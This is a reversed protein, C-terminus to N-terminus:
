PRDGGGAPQGSAAPLDPGDPLLRSAAPRRHLREVVARDTLEVAEAGAAADAAVADAASDASQLALVMTLGGGPTTEPTLTGGMAEILGRSLALGLGIGSENDRDGRRQFPLFMEDRQDEPVGPGHDIVRLEVQDGHESATVMPPRDPPSFRLANGIVNVLVRQLLGPDGSAASLDDPIRVRVTRGATGLEDLATPVADELWIAATTVGLAGAQLRSMDLLNNVLRALRDLSEAATALLEQKDHESFAVESSRLSAVAAIASALPTRLDHSVAALLATRMRDTEALPRAKAVEEALQEQRLAVAAQAAFAEIIRRDSAPLARGTLALVLDETVPVTTNGQGPTACPPGGVCAAMQWADPDDFYEPTQPADPRRELLTVADLGFTERLRELLAQLPRAGRLVSGAVAALM